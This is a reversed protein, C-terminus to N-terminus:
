PRRVARIVADVGTGSAARPREEALVITWERADLAEVAEEVTVQVQGAAPTPEGTAPDVPLHGVLFLTGAPAVGTGLRTVMEGVSGAVHVYLCSVLDFRRPSPAWTGLDGEVWEIREAVDSGVTEATSRAHDLATVAFDVATVQWGSAALWIAEAGHGCGADLARGATLDGVEALLHANPPRSAVKDPHERLAQAWRREWSDRDFTGTVDGGGDDGVTRRGPTPASKVREGDGIEVPTGDDV